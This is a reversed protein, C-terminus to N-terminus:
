IGRGTKRTNNMPKETCFRNAEAQDCDVFHGKEFRMYATALDGFRNKTVIAESYPNDNNKTYASERYLMIIRDADQEISGSDRLDSNVPRKDAREDVKRNLQSLLIIPVNFNKAFTKLAWTTETIKQVPSDSKCSHNILGLYDIVIASLPEKDLHREAIACIERESLGSRDVFYLKHEQTREIFNAIQAYQHDDIGRAERLSQVAIGTGASLLRDMLQINGMELSFFLVSGKKEVINRTLTLAFETKGTGPRGAVVVLDNNNIGGLANDVGQLGTYLLRQSFDKKSRQEFVELYTELLEGMAVPVINARAELLSQMKQLGDAAINTTEEDTRAAQLNSAAELFFKVAQRNIWASRVKEAYGNLNAASATNKAIEALLAFDAGFDQNLLVIDILNDKRAQNRINNYIEGLYHSGFMEPELWVMVDRARASLGGILFSGVLSYEITHIRDTM